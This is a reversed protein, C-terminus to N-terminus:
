SVCKHNVVTGYISLCLMIGYDQNEGSNVDDNNLLINFITSNELFQLYFESFVSTTPAAM